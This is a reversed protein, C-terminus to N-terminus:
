EYVPGEVTIGSDALSHILAWPLDTDEGESDASGALVVTGVIPDKAAPHTQRYLATALWNIEFGLLLGEDHVYMGVINPVITTYDIHGGVSANLFDLTDRQREVLRLRQQGPPAPALVGFRTM